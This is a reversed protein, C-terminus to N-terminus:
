LRRRFLPIVFIIIAIIVFPIVGIGISKFFAEKQSMTNLNNQTSKVQTSIITATVGSLALGISALGVTIALNQSSETQKIEIVGEINRILNELPKSATIFNAHDSEIQELYKKPNFDSGSYDLFKLPTKEERNPNTFSLRRKEYNDYNLRITRLQFELTSLNDTYASLYKLATTLDTRLEKLSIQRKDLKKNAEKIFKRISSYQTKLNAKLRCSQWNAWIIKHRYGFLRMFDFYIKPVKRITQNIDEKAPFLFIVIHQNKPSFDKWNTTWDSPYQWLEFVDAGLINGKVQLDNKWNSNYGFLNEYCEQATKEADQTETALKASFVWSQGLTGIKDPALEQLYKGHNIHYLLDTKIAKLDTDISQYNFNPQQKEPVAYKGSCNVRLAYTDGLQVAFYHGDDPLDFNKTNNKEDPFLRVYDATSNELKALKGLINKDPQPYVKKWFRQRKLAIGNISDGLGERLDYIFLDLTPYILQNESM